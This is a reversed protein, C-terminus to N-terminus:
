VWPNQFVGAADTDRTAAPVHTVASAAQLALRSRPARVARKFEAVEVRLNEFWRRLLDVM